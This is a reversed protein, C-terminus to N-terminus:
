QVKLVEKSLRSKRIGVASAILGAGAIFAGVIFASKLGAMQIVFGGALCGIVYGVTFSCGMVAQGRMKDEAAMYKDTFYVGAPIILAFTVAQLLQGAFVVYVSEAFFFLVAKVIYFFAAIKILKEEKGAAFKVISMMVPIEVIASIGNAIGMEFSGGGTYEMLNIMFNGAIHHFALSLTCGTVILFFGPYRKLFAILSEGKARDSGEVVEKECPMVMVFILLGIAILIGTVPVSDSGHVSCIKGLVVSLSAYGLSGFARCFGFDASIGRREYYFAIGNLLPIFCNVACMFLCFTVAILAKTDFLYLLICSAAYLLSLIMMVMKWSAIGRDVIGGLYTQVVSAIAGGLAMIFGAEGATFDSELLFYTGYGFAILNMMWYVAQLSSYRAKISM